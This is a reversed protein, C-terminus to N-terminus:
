LALESWAGDTLEVSLFNLHRIVAPPSTPRPMPHRPLSPSPGSRAPCHPLRLALASHATTPRRSARPLRQSYCARA